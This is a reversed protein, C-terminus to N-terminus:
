AQLQQISTNAVINQDTAGPPADFSKKCASFTGLSVVLVAATILKFIKNM